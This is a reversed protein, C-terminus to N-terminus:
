TRWWKRRCKRHIARFSLTLACSVRWVVHRVVRVLCPRSARRVLRNQAQLPIPQMLKKEELSPIYRHKTILDETMHACSVCSACSLSLSFCL